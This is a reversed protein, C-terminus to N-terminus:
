ALRQVCSCPVRPAAGLRARLGTGVTKAYLEQVVRSPKHRILLIPHELHQCALAVAHHAHSFASALRQGSLCGIPLAGVGGAVGDQLVDADEQSVLEPLGNLHTGAQDARRLTDPHM